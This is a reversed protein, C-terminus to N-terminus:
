HSKFNIKKNQNLKTAKTKQNGNEFKKKINM